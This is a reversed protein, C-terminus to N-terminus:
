EARNVAAASLFTPTEGGGHLVLNAGSVYSALSSAFYLCAGAVDEPTGLRELPVTDAVREISEEDGYHLHSQETRIM